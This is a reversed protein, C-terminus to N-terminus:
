SHFCNQSLYIESVYWAAVDDQLTDGLQYVDDQLTDVFQYVVDQLTDGLQYLQSM